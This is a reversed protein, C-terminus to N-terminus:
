QQNRSCLRAATPRPGPHVRTPQRHVHVRRRRHLDVDRAPRVAPQFNRTDQFPDLMTALAESCIRNISLDARYFIAGYSELICSSEDM